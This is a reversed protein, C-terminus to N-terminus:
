ISSLATTLYHWFREVSAVEVKEDPSHPFSITPGFSIMEMDGVAHQIIGCELGAHIVNVEPRKGFLREYAAVMVDMLYSKLNPMWGPYDGSTGVKAGALSCTSQIMSVLQEKMFDSASRVLFQCIVEGERTEVISLNSSTEVTKQMGPIYRIVGDHVAVMANIVDDQVEVPLVGNPLNVPLVGISIADEIGNYLQKLSSETEKIYKVLEEYRSEPVTLVAFAERPIANRLTGGRYAALRVGFNRVLLKLLNFMVKNANARGLHIDVGSHGGKLGTLTLEIARHKDSVPSLREYAFLADVNVGGACGVFLEGEAESDLNILTRGDISDAALGFAGDMGTEEDITFLAEIPGHVLTESALVAMIAAVGIGNDAGLTTDTAHVWGDVLRPKIPDKEFDHIIHSNKQPVMDLHSQLVVIRRSEMGLTAPKTILINGIADKKTPLGLKQGFEIMFHQIPEMHGSPRPVQTLAYFHQWLETPNLKSITDEM